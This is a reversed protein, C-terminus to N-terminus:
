RVDLAHALFEALDVRFEVGDFGEITNPVTVALGLARELSPGRVVCCARERRPPHGSPDRSPRSITMRLTRPRAIRIPPARIRLSSRWPNTFALRSLRENSPCTIALTM